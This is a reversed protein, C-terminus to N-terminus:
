GGAGSRNDPIFPQGLEASLKTVFLRAVIDTGGGPALPIIMRVPKEPWQASQAHSPVGLGLALFTAVSLSMRVVSRRRVREARPSAAPTLPLRSSTREMRRRGTLPSLAPTLPLADRVSQRADDQVVVGGDRARRAGRMLMSVRRM